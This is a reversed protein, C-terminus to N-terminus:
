SVLDFGIIVSALKPDDDLKKSRRLFLDGATSPSSSCVNRVGPIDEVEKFPVPPLVFRAGRGRGKDAFIVFDKGLFIAKGRESAKLTEGPLLEKGIVHGNEDVLQVTAHPPARFSGDKIICAVHQRRVAEKVGDNNVTLPGIAPYRSEIGALGARMEDTLYFAHRVGRLSRLVGLVEELKEREWEGKPGLSDGAKIRARSCPRSTRM